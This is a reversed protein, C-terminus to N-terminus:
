TYAVDRRLGFASMMWRTRFLPEAEFLIDAIPIFRDNLSVFSAYISKQQQGKESRRRKGLL